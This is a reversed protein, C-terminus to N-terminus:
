LWLTVVMVFAAFQRLNLHHLDLMDPPESLLLPVSESVWRGSRGQLMPIEYVNFSGCKAIRM